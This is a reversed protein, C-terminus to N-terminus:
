VLLWTTDYRPYKKGSECYYNLNNKYRSVLYSHVRKERNKKPSHFNGTKYRQELEVYQEVYREFYTFSWRAAGPTVGAAGPTVGAAGPTVGRTVCRRLNPGTEADPTQGVGPGREAPPWSCGAAPARLRLQRLQQAPQLLQLPLLPRVASLQPAPRAAGDELATRGALRGASDCASPM